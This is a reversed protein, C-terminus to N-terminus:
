SISLNANVRADGPLYRTDRRALHYRQLCFQPAGMKLFSCIGLALMVGPVTSRFLKLLRNLLPPRICFESSVARIFDRQKDRESSFGKQLPLSSGKEIREM